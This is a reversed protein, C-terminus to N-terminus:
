NEVSMFFARFHESAYAPLTSFLTDTRAVEGSDM